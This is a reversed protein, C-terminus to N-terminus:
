LSVTESALDASTELVQLDMVLFISAASAMVGFTVQNSEARGTVCAFVGSAGRRV